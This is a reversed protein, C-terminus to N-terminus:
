AIQLVAFEEQFRTDLASSVLTDCRRIVLDDEAADVAGRGRRALDMSEM